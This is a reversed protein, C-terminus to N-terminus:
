SPPSPRSCPFPPTGPRERALLYAGVLAALIRSAMLDTKTVVPLTALPAERLGAHLRRYFAPHRYAYVRLATLPDDQHHALSDRGWRDRPQWASRVALTRLKLRADM